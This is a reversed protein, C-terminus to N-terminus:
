IRTTGKLGPSSSCGNGASVEEGTGDRSLLLDSYVCVIKVRKSHCFMLFFNTDYCYDFVNVMAKLITCKLHSGGRESRAIVRVM